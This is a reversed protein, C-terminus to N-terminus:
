RDALRSAFRNVTSLPQLSLQSRSTHLRVNKTVNNVKIARPKKYGTSYTTHMNPQEHPELTTTSMPTPITQHTVFQQRDNKKKIFM